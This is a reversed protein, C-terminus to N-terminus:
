GTIPRVGWSGSWTEGPQLTVLGDGTNFADPACSMPEVAIADEGPAFGAATYAQIYPFATDLWMEVPGNGTRLEVRAIGDADRDLDTFPTDLTREGLVTGARLAPDIPETGVPCSQEDCRLATAAPIRLWAAAIRLGGLHFYPHTGLGYPVPETGSNTATHDARLGEPGVSWRVAIHLPFPYGIQPPLKYSLDVADSAAEASWRVWRALGHIANRRPVETLPLQYDTGGFRYHGDRIRNPWPVLVGGASHPAMVSEAFGALVPRDGLDYSRIGGGVEVAVAHHSGATIPFQRGTPAETDTVPCGYRSARYTPARERSASVRIIM